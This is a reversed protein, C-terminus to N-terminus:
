LVQQMVWYWGATTLLALLIGWGIVLGALRAAFQPDRASVRRDRARIGPGPRAM